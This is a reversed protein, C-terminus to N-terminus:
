EGSHINNKLFVLSATTRRVHLGRESRGAETGATKDGQFDKQSALRCHFTRNRRWSKDVQQRRLLALESKTKEPTRLGLDLYVEMM